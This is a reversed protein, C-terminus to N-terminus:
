EIQRFDVFFVGYGHHFFYRGPGEFTFAFQALPTETTSGTEWDDVTRSDYQVRYYTNRRDVLRVEVTDGHKLRLPYSTSLTRANAAQGIETRQGNIRVYLHLDPLSSRESPNHEIGRSTAPSVQVEFRTDFNLTEGEEIESDATADQTVQTEIWRSQDHLGRNVFTTGCGASLAGAISLWLFAATKHSM